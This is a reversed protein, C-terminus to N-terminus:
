ENKKTLFEKSMYGINEGIKVKAWEDDVVEILKVETNKSYTKIVDSTTSPETRLRLGASTSVIYTELNSDNYLMEPAYIKGLPKDFVGWFPHDAIKLYLLLVVVAVVIYSLPIKIKRKPTNTKNQNRQQNYQNLKKQAEEEIKRKEQLKRKEEKEKQEQLQKERSLKGRVKELEIDTATQIIAFDINNKQAEAQLMKKEASSIKGDAAYEKIRQMLWEPIVSESQRQVNDQLLMLIKGCDSFRNQPETQLCTNIIERYTKDPISNINITKIDGTLMELFILGIAYIDAKHNVLNGRTTQEPAAYRPTGVKMLNDDFADAVALGFDIIKVSDGRYTIMINDPKLDRHVMQKNHVYTMAELVQLLVKRVFDLDKIGGKKIYATLPKGDVYEMYYYVGEADEGKGHVKIIYHHDLNFANEFEKFFLERYKFNDRFEPKIRKVIVNRGSYKALQVISMAGDTSLTRIDSFVPQTPFTNNGFGSPNQSINPQTFNQSTNPIEFGSASNSNLSSNNNTQNQATVFGSSLDSNLPVNNITENQLTVFGSSLDSNLPTSNDKHNQSNVFNNSLDSNLTTTNVTQNQATVFGSNLDSNTPTSNDTQNTKNVKPFKLATGKAKPQPPNTKHKESLVKNILMELESASVKNEIAKIELFQRDTVTLYGKICASEVFFLLKDKSM